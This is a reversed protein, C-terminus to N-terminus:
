TIFMETQRGPGMRGEEPLQERIIRQFVVEAVRGTCLESALETRGELSSCIVWDQVVLSVTAAEPM